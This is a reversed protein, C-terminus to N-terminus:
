SEAVGKASDDTGFVPNVTAEVIHEYLASNPDEPDFPLRQEEFHFLFCPDVAKAEIEFV